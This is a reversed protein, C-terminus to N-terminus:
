IKKGWIMFVGWYFMIAMDLLILYTHVFLPLLNLFGSISFFTMLLMYVIMLLSVVENKM